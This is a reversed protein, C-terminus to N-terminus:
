RQAGADSSFERGSAETLTFEPVPGLDPLGEDANRIKNLAFLAVGASGVALFILVGFIAPARTM